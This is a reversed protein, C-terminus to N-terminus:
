DVHSELNLGISPRSTKKFGVPMVRTKCYDIMSQVNDRYEPNKNLFDAEVNMFKSFKDIALKCDGKGRDYANFGETYLPNDMGMGAWLNLSILYLALFAVRASLTQM